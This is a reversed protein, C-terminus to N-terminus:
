EREAVHYQNAKYRKCAQCSYIIIFLLAIIILIIILPLVWGYNGGIRLERDFMVEFEQEPGDVYIPFQNSAVCRYIGADDDELDKIEVSNKRFTVRPSVELPIGDKYWVTYPHPYANVPCVILATAGKLSSMHAAIVLTPDSASVTASDSSNVHVVPRSYAFMNGFVLEGNETRIECRYKGAQAVSVNGFILRARRNDPDLHAKLVKKDKTRIFRAWTIPQIEGDKSAQCWLDSTHATIPHEDTSLVGHGRIVVALNGLAVAHASIGVIGTVLFSHRKLEDVGDAM